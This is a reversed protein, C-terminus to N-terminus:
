KEHNELRVRESDCTGDSGRCALPLNKREEHTILKLKRHAQGPNAMQIALMLRDEDNLIEETERDYGLASLYNNHGRWQLIRAIDFLKNEDKCEQCSKLAMELNKM